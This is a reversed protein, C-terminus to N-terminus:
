LKLLFISSVLISAVMWDKVQDSLILPLSPSTPSMYLALLCSIDSAGPTITDSRRAALSSSAMMSATLPDPALCCVLVLMLLTSMPATGSLPPLVSVM